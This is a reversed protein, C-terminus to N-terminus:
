TSFFYWVIIQLIASGKTLNQILNYNKSEKLIQYLVSIIGMVHNKKFQSELEEKRIISDVSCNQIYRDYIHM